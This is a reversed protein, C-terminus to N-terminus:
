LFLNIIIVDVCLLADLISKAEPTFWSKQQIPKKM